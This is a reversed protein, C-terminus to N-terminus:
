VESRDLSKIKNNKISEAVALMQGYSLTSQDLKLLLSERALAARVSKYNVYDDPADLEYFHDFYKPPLMSLGGRETSINIKDNDYIDLGHDAYYQYAIGPKRSMLSFPPTLNFTTYFQALNGTLKKTVYRAVYACTHWSVDSFEVNGIPVYDGVDNNYVSWARELSPSRYYNVFMNDARRVRWVYRDHAFDVGFIIAHYHPRFTKPGYEGSLFFRIKTDPYMKRLRKFFLQVDRKDLSYSTNVDGDPTQYHHKPVNLESYTLTVFIAATHYQLELMLRDAWRRSYDLRCGICQGCPLLLMNNQKLNDSLVDNSPSIKHLIKICKKGTKPDLIPDGTIPNSKVVALYPHYCSM